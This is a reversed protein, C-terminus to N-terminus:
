RWLADTMGKALDTGDIERCSKSVPMLTNAWQTITNIHPTGLDLCQSISNSTNM